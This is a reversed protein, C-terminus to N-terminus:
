IFVQIAEPINPMFMDNSQLALINQFDSIRNGHLHLSSVIRHPFTLPDYDQLMLWSTLNAHQCGSCQVKTIPFGAGVLWSNRSFGLMQVLWSFPNPLKLQHVFKGVTFQCSQQTNAFDVNGFTPISQSMLLMQAECKQAGVDSWMVNLKVMWHDGM